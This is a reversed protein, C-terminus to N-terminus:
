KDALILIIQVLLGIVATLAIVAGAELRKLRFQIDQMREACLAEHDEIKQELDKMDVM